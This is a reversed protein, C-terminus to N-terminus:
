ATSKLPRKGQLQAEIDLRMRQQRDGEITKWDMLGSAQSRALDSMPTARAYRAAAAIDEASSRSKNEIDDIPVVVLTERGFIQVMVRVSGGASDAGALGGYTAFAGDKIEVEDGQRVAPGALDPNGEALLARKAREDFWGMREEESLLKLTATAIRCAKGNNTVVGNIGFVNRGDRHKQKMDYWLSSGDPVRIFVYGPLMPGQVERKFKQRAQISEVWTTAMPVYGTLGKEKLFALTRREGRPAVTVAYWGAGVEHEILPPTVREDAPIPIETKLAVTVNHQPTASAEFGRIKPMGM